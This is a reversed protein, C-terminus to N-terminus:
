EVTVSKALNRPQDIETGRNKAVELAFLQLPVVAVPPLLINDIAPIIFQNKRPVLDVFKDTLLHLLGNRATIEKFNSYSKEFLENQSIVGLVPLEQNVLALPGHKMEGGPYGEAHVYAIEKLKLAGELVVPYLIGRGLYFFHWKDYLNRAWKKILQHDRLINEIKRAIDKICNINKIYKHYHLYFWFNVLAFSAVLQNVFTKTAAVGIEAGARIYITEESIRTISSSLVNCISLTKCKSERAFEMATITDKTEGSQSIAIVLTREDVKKPYYRLESAVVPVSFVNLYKDLLYSLYIGAYYASGCGTVIVKNCDMLYEDLRPADIFKYTDNSKEIGSLFNEVSVPQEFIEKETFYGYKGRSLSLQEVNIHEVKYKKEKGKFDYIKLTNNKIVAIEGNNLVYVQDTFGSLTQIDSSIIYEEKGIGVVLPSYFRVGYLEYPRDKFIIGLAYSGRIIKVLELIASFPQGKYHEELIHAIVESDTQSVFNHRSALHAKLESFNEIIGNHVIYIAFDCSFHPHANIDSPEGHTAWRVHGIGCNAPFDVKKLHNDLVSLKGAFKKCLIRKGNNLAIGSSDYGRYELLKLCKLIINKADKKGIYGIIGCM